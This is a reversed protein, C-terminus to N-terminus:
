FEKFDPLIMFERGNDFTYRKYLKLNFNNNIQLLKAIESSEPFYDCNSLNGNLIGFNTCNTKLNSIM